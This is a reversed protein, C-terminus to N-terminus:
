AKETVKSYCKADDKHHHYSCSSAKADTPNPEHLPRRLPFLEKALDVVFDIGCEQSVWTAAGQHVYMDLLLRRLPSGDPTGEYARQITSGTPYWRKGDGGPISVSAILADITADKFNGDQVKEGFLFASVLISCEDSDPGSVSTLERSYIKWHYIWHAYLDFIDADDTPLTVTNEQGEKWPESLAAKFFASHECLLDKHVVFKREEEGVVLTVVDSGFNKREVHLRRPDTPM